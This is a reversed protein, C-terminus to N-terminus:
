SMRREGSDTCLNHFIILLKIEIQIFSKCNSSHHFYNSYADIFKDYMLNTQICALFTLLKNVSIYLEKGTSFGRLFVKLKYEFMRM